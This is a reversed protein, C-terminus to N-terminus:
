RGHTATWLYEDSDVDDENVDFDLDSDARDDETSPVLTLIEYFEILAPAEAMERRTPARAPKPWELETPIFASRLISGPWEFLSWEIDVTWAITVLDRISIMFATIDPPVVTSPNLRSVALRFANLGAALAVLAQNSNFIVAADACLLAANGFYIGEASCLADGFHATTFDLVSPRVATALVSTPPRSM